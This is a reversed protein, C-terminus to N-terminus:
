ASTVEIRSQGGSQRRVQIQIGIRETMEQVHSIVGVKRGQAQLNDLADMAVRLTDADLSGFGEDIFLSEVRVRNSSLSALGLALALSVLFSEGGSLSHVSRYEDGMDQDVVMLALTDKVRELRYRRSLDALHRNAYGLLVDLTFQQAYNRFKKGDASGILDNLQGWIRTKAAQADINGQLEATRAQREDDQRLALEAEIARQRAQELDAAAQTWATQVADAPDQTARQGEHTERRSRREQLIMEAHGVDDALQQLAQREAAIWAGDRALLTRLQASDLPEELHQADFAAIWANLTADAQEAAQQSAAFTQRAQGLVAEASAQAQAAKRAAQDQRQRGAEADQVARALGAEVEAVPRGAFLAQRQRRKDQLDRDVQEFRATADQLRATKEAAAEALAQCEIDLQGLATQRQNVTEIRANWQRAQERRARHFAVPDAQWNPRWDEGAFAADLADLREHLRRAAEAQRDGATRVAQVARDLTAQAVNLADRAAAHRGQAADRAPQAEDRTKGAQRLADEEGAIAALRERVSQHQTAFWAPRDAPAVAALEAAVAQAHWAATDRQIAAALPEGEGAIAALRQRGTEVAAQQTAEQQVLVDLGQRCEDVEAKLGALMARSPADGAAYPHETAGCVPCPLGTELAARLTEVNKACAAEATKLSREAQELWAAAAPKGALLQTLATEARAIKEQLTGAEADLEQQRALSGALAAWRREGDTLQERRTEAAARGTALGEPDFGALAQIAAQLQTEATQLGTEAQALAAAAQDRAQRQKREDRQLAAIARDADGLGNQAKAAEDFLLDWRPWDEALIRSPENAALWDRAIKLDQRIRDREAQKDALNQQALAEAQRAGTLASVADAHRPALLEIAADLAKARDLDAGAATKAQEAAAVAQAAQTLAEDAQQRVRRAQALDGEAAAVAQSHKAVEGAMRDVEAVRPRADQVAEVRAFGAQRRAAAERATRAKKVEDWAQQEAQKLKEWADHWQLRRDLETKRRELAATETRAAALSQELRVRAEADLPQQGALQAQLTDLAKQENRAREFARISIGTYVDLGTLTELLEARENDNAKLFTAFENQALLVARTFQPFSLGLREQIAQQVENKVGGIRQGGDLTELLMETNQLKGDARGRARRVSWRARYPIGDNGVFDVEAFGEGARRRLLNRPDQPTITEEGVDPLSVGRVTARTLRPTEDYLALCLADLLTSKGSGTPGCIAFLGTTALPGQHFRLEFEGALSALNKGRIALIKM